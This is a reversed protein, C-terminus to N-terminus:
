IVFCRFRVLIVEGSTPTLTYVVLYHRGAIAFLNNVAISPQHKFNYGTTDKDWPAATQLADFVTSAITVAVANHGTVVTRADPDNADFLYATYKASALSAQTIYAGAHNQVRAMLVPASDRNVTEYVDVAAAM